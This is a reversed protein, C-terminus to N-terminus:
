KSQVTPSCPTSKPKPAFDAFEPGLKAIRARLRDEDMGTGDYAIVGQSNVLVVHPIGNSPMLSAIAGDGDHFNPWGYGHKALFDTAKTSDEDQDVSILVLGKSKGLEYLEALHPMSAICPACWTAWFDILMPKGRFSEIPKVAGDVSKFKMSPVPDGAMSSPGDRPDPFEDILHADLPPKFAFLQDSVPGDLVTKTYVVTVDMVSPLRGGGIQVFSDSHETTKLIENRDIDIWIRRDFKYNPDVRKEDTNRVRVVKCHVVHGDITVDQDPLLEAASLRKVMSPFESRATKARMLGMEALPILGQHESTGLPKATYRHEFPHYTWVTKGDSVQAASGTGTQAEFHSRDGPGEASILISKSWQQDFERSMTREEISEIDYTKADSYHQAVRTLLDLANSDSAPVQSFALPGQSICLSILLLVQRM